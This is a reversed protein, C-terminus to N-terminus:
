YLSLAYLIFRMSIETTYKVWKTGGKTEAIGDYTEGNKYLLRDAREILWTPIKYKEGVFAAQTGVTIEAESNVITCLKSPIDEPYYKKIEDWAEVNFARVYSSGNEINYSSEATITLEQGKIIQGFWSHFDIYIDPVVIKCAERFIKSEYESFPFGNSSNVTGYGANSDTTWIQGDAVCNRNLNVNQYNGRGTSIGDSSHLLGYPNLEPIIYINYSRLTEISKNGRNNLLAYMLAHCDGMASLENHCGSLILISPASSNETLIEQAKIKYMNFPCDSLLSPKEENLFSTLDIVSVEDAHASALESIKSLYLNKNAAIMDNTLLNKDDLKLMAFDPTKIYPAEVNYKDHYCVCNFATEIDPTINKNIPDKIEIWVYEASSPIIGRWSTKNELYFGDIEDCKNMSKSPTAAIKMLYGDKVSLEMYGNFPMRFIIRNDSSSSEVIPNFYKNGHSLFGQKVIFKNQAFTNVIRNKSCRVDYSTYISNIILKCVGSPITIQLGTTFMAKDAVAVVKGDKDLMCWLRYLDGGNGSIIFKDGEKVYFIHHYFENSDDYKTDDVIEGVAKNTVIGGYNPKTSVFEFNVKKDLLDKIKDYQREIAKELEIPKRYDVSLSPKDNKYANFVLYKAKSPAVIIREEIIAEGEISKYLIKKENDLFTITSNVSTSAGHGKIYFKDNYKCELIAYCWNLEKEIILPAIDGINGTVDVLGNILEVPTSMYNGLRKTESNSMLSAAKVGSEIIFEDNIESPTIISNNEKRIEFATYNSEDDIYVEQRYYNGELLNKVFSSLESNSYKNVVYITFGCPVKIYVNGYLCCIIGNANHTIPGYISLTGQIINPSIGGIKSSIVKQSIVKNTSTGFEQAVDILVESKWYNSNAEKTFVYLSEGIIIHTSEDTTPFNTYEGSKSAFYFLKGEDAPPVTSPNAFGLFKYDAGIVNVINLLTSQLMDGTIEQNGNQKIVQKIANKLNEYAM